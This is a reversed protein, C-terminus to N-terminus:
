RLSTLFSSPGWYRFSFKLENLVPFKLNKMTVLFMNGLSLSMDEVNTILICMGSYLPQLNGCPHVIMSVTHTATQHSINVSPDGATLVKWHKLRASALSSLYFLYLVVPPTKCSLRMTIHNLRHREFM